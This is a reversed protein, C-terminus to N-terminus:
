KLGEKAPSRLWRLVCAKEMDPSCTINGDKDISGNKGDCYLDSLDNLNGAQLNDVLNYFAEALEDDSMYRIQDAITKPDGLGHKDRYAACRSGRYTADCKVVPCTNCGSENM